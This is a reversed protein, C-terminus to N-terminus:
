VILLENGEEAQKNRGVSAKILDGKQVQKIGGNRSKQIEGKKYRTSAILWVIL